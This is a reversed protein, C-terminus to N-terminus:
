DIYNKKFKIKTQVAHHALFAALLIIVLALGLFPYVWGRGAKSTIQDSMSEVKAKVGDIM